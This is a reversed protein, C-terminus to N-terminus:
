ARRRRAAAAVCLLGTLLMLYTSPEPVSAVINDLAFQGKNSNFATCTGTAACSFGFFAVESFSQNGFNASANFHQFSLGNAGGALNYTEYMSTGDAYFGQVRLLGAVTPYAMGAASGIFSADFGKIQFKNGAQAPDLLLVGDNLAAFYSSANNSPCALGACLGPDGGDVVVGALDGAQASIDNVLGTMLFGAQQFSDGHTVVTNAYGEFDIVNAHAAPMLALLAAGLATKLGSHSNKKNPFQASRIM